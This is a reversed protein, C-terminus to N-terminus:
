SSIPGKVEYSPLFIKNSLLIKKSLILLLGNAISFNWPPYHEPFSKFVLFNNSQPLYTNNTKEFLFILGPLALEPLIGKAKQISAPLM